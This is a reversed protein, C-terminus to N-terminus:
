SMTKTSLSQYGYPHDAVLTATLKKRQLLLSIPPSATPSTTPPDTPQYWEDEQHELIQWGLHEIFTKADLFFKKDTKTTWLIDVIRLRDDSTYEARWKEVLNPLDMSLWVEPGQIMRPGVRGHALMAPGIIGPGRIGPGIIGPIINFDLPGLNLYLKLKRGGSRSVLAIITEILPDIVDVAGEPCPLSPAALHPHCPFSYNDEVGDTRIGNPQQWAKLPIWVRMELRRLYGRNKLGIQELWHVVLRYDRDDGHIRFTNNGYFVAGAEAAITSNCRLLSLSVDWITSHPVSEAPSGLGCLMTAPWVDIQSSSVLLSSYVILRIDWPLDLFELRPM